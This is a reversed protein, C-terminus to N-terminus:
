DYGGCWVRQAQDRRIFCWPWRTTGGASAFVLYKEREVAMVPYNIARWIPVSDGLKLEQWEQLIKGSSPIGDNEIWDYGYWGARRYGIQV